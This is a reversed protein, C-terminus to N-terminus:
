GELLPTGNENGLKCHCTACWGTDGNGILYIAYGFTTCGGNIKCNESVEGCKSIRDVKYKKNNDFFDSRKYDVELMTLIDEPKIKSILISDENYKEVINM